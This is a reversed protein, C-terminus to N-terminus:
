ELVYRWELKAVREAWFSKDYPSAAYRWNDYEVACTKRKGERDQPKIPCYNCDSLIYECPYCHNISTTPLSEIVPKKFLSFVSMVMWLAYHDLQYEAESMPDSIPPCFTGTKEDYFISWDPKEEGFLRRNFGDFDNLKLETM